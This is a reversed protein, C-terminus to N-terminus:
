TTMGALSSKRYLGRALLEVRGAAVLSRLAREGIREVADCYRFTHPLVGLVAEDEWTM